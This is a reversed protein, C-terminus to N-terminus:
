TVCDLRTFIGMELITPIGRGEDGILHAWAEILEVESSANSRNGLKDKLRQIYIGNLSGDPLRRPVFLCSLGGSTQALVLHADCQPASFFWKHGTIRYTGDACREARTTNARVDSGGQKETMGMGILGGRKMAFPLDRADYDRSLLRPLWERALWADRRMAAIAGYTMTTPCLTGSEIQAQLFYGAARAAHPHPGAPDTQSWPASHYGRAIIGQMLVHWAPHFEIYDTREGQANFAHLVPTYRNALRANEFLASQGLDAGAQTLETEAAGAGERRVAEQLASDTAYLNYDALPPTQNYVAHTRLSHEM